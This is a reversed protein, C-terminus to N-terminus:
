DLNSLFIFVTTKKKSDAQKRLRSLTRRMTEVSTNPEDSILLKVYRASANRVGGDSHLLARLGKDNISHSDIDWFNGNRDVSIVMSNAPASFTNGVLKIEFSSGPTEAARPSCLWLCVGFSVALMETCKGV